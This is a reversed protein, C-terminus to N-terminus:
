RNSEPKQQARRDKRDSWRLWIALGQCVMGFVISTASLVAMGHDTFLNLVNGVAILAWGVGLGSDHVLNYM